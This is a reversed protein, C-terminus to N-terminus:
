TMKRALFKRRAMVGNIENQINACEVSHEVAKRFCKQSSRLSNPVLIGFWQLPDDVKRAPRGGDEFDLKNFESNLNDVKTRRNRLGDSDDNTYENETTITFHQFRVSGSATSPSRQCEQSSTRVGACIDTTPYKLRSVSHPGGMANRAQAMSLYGQKSWQELELKKTLLEQSLTLLQMTLADMEEHFSSNSAPDTDQEDNGM